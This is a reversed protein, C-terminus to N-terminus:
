IYPRHVQPLVVLKVTTCVYHRYNWSKREKLCNVVCFFRGFPLTWMCHHTRLQLGESYDVSVGALECVWFYYIFITRYFGPCRVLSTKKSCSSRFSMLNSAPLLQMVLGFVSNSRAEAWSGRSVSGSIPSASSTWVLALSQHCPFHLLFMHCSVSTGCVTWAKGSWIDTNGEWYCKTTSHNCLSTM